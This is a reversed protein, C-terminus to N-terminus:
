NFESPNVGKKQHNMGIKKGIKANNKVNALELAPPPVPRWGVQVAFWGILVKPILFAMLFKRWVWHPLLAFAHVFQLADSEARKAVSFVAGPAQAEVVLIQCRNVCFQTIKM